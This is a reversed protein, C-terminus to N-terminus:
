LDVPVVQLLQPPILTLLPPARKADATSTHKPAEEQSIKM